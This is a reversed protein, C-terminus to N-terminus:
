GKPSQSPSTYSPVARSLAQLIPAVHILMIPLQQNKDKASSLLFEWDDWLSGVGLETPQVGDFAKDDLVTWYNDERLKVESIALDKEVFDFIGNIVKRLTDIQITGDSAM